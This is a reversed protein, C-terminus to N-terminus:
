HVPPYSEWWIDDHFEYFNRQRTATAWHSFIFKNLTVWEPTSFMNLANGHTRWWMCDIVSDSWDHKHKLFTRAKIVSNAKSTANAVKNNIIRHNIQLNVLNSPLCQHQKVEPLSRALRCLGNPLYIMQNFLPDMSCFHKQWPKPQIPWQLTSVNM